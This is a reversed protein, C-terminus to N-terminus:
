LFAYKEKLELEYRKVKDVFQQYGETGGHLPRHNQMANLKGVESMIGQTKESFYTDLFRQWIYDIAQSNPHIMDAEYFRYDRLDDMMIEYAPFYHVNSFQQSLAEAALVLTAKSRQNELLGDKIHRIPSVTIIIQCDINQNKIEDFTNSLKEVIDDVSLRKKDFHSAPVKHCNAVVQQSKKEIFINATGLTLLLIKMKKLTNRGQEIEVNVGRLIKEIEPSSFRGHHQWSHYLDNNKFIDKETFFTDTMLYNISDAITIPNYVIGFPNISIPLRLAKLREGINETFCSGITLIPTQYAIEFNAKPIPLITRFTM